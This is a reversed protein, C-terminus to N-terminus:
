NGYFAEIELLLDARCIDGLLYVAPGNIAPYRELEERVCDRDAADRLYVRLKQLELGGGGAEHMAQLNIATEKMQARVTDRHLTEHGVVSATGSVFLSSGRGAAHFTARSFSPSRPGYQRPYRYASVQRPNEITRGPSNACIFSVHLREVKSGIATAAPYASEEDFATRFGEYRGVCFRRYREEDGSGFNIDRVYNWMRLIHRQERAAVFGLIEEYLERTHEAVDSGQPDDIQAVGFLLEDTAAFRIRGQEGRDTVPALTEWIELPAPEGIAAPPVRFGAPSIAPTAAQTM